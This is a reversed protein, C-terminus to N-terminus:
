PLDEGALTGMPDWPELEIPKQELAQRQEDSLYRKYIVAQYVYRDFWADDAVYYGKQGNKDGWSNEIKWRNPRGDQLNVGTLVMAHNMASHRYDLMDAKSMSLDFGLIGEYDYLRDFWAGQSSDGAHGVDSGFWVVHGDLMQRLVLSKLEAMDMNLYCVPRGGVVNNIFKVTYTRGYPKDATPAHIVSVTEQLPLTVFRRYFALPTLDSFVQYNGDKDTFEWTFSQPPEGYSQCFLGYLEAVMDRKRGALAERNLGERHLRRLTAAGQRLKTSVIYNLVRSGESHYTEPMAQKPVVGYKGVLNLLMDWQGGDAYSTMLWSVLRGDSPEDLTDLVSELFLNAKEFKDWFALYNQSLEFEELKFQRAIDERMLNLGAFLWCRGTAKQNTVPMTKIEVSFVHRIDRLVDNRFAAAQLGSKAIAHATMPKVPDQRYSQAFASLDDPTLEGRTM